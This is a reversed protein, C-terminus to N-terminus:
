RVCLICVFARPKTNRIARSRRKSALAIDLTDHREKFTAFAITPDTRRRKRILPENEMVSSGRKIPEEGEPRCYYSRNSTCRWEKKIRKEPHQADDKGQEHEFEKKRKRTSILSTCSFTPSLPPSSAYSPSPPSSLVEMMDTADMHFVACSSLSDSRRRKASPAHKKSLPRKIGMSSPPDVDEMVTDVDAQVVYKRRCVNCAYSIAHQKRLMQNGLMKFSAAYEPIKSLWPTLQWSSPLSHIFKHMANLVRRDLYSVSVVSNLMNYLEQAALEGMMQPHFECSRYLDHMIIEAHKFTELLLRKTRKTRISRARKKFLPKLLEMNIKIQPLMM